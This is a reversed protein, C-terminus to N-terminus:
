IASCLTAQLHKVSVMHMQVPAGARALRTPHAFSLLTSGAASRRRKRRDSPSCCGSLCGSVCVCVCLPSGDM